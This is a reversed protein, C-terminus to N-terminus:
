DSYSTDGTLYEYLIYTDRAMEYKDKDELMKGLVVYIEPNKAGDKGELFDFFETDPYTGTIIRANHADVLYSISVERRLDNDPMATSVMFYSAAQSFAQSANEFENLKEYSMGKIAHTFGLQVLESWFTMTFKFDIHDAHIEGEHISTRGEQTLAGIFIEFSDVNRTHEIAMRYKGLGYYAQVYNYEDFFTLEDPPIKALTDIAGQFNSDKVYAQALKSLYQDGARTLSNIAAKYNGFRISIAGHYYYITSTDLMERNPLREIAKDVFYLATEYAQDLFYMQSLIFYMAYQSDGGYQSQILGSVRDSYILTIGPSELEVWDLDIQQYGTLKIRRQIPEYHAVVKETGVSGWIIMTADFCDAVAKAEENSKVERKILEIRVNDLNSFGEEEAFRKALNLNEVWEKHPELETGHQQEFASILFLIEGQDLEAEDIDALKWCLDVAAKKAETYTFASFGATALFVLTFIWHSFQRLQSAIKEREKMTRLKSLRRILWFLALGSFVLGIAQVLLYALIENFVTDLFPIKDKIIYGAYLFVGFTALLLLINLIGRIVQGRKSRIQKSIWELIDVLSTRKNLDKTSWGEKRNTM